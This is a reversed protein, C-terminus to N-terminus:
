DAAKARVDTKPKASRRVNNEGRIAKLTVAKKEPQQKPEADMNNIGMQKCIARIQSSAKDMIQIQPLARHDGYETQYTLQIGNECALEKQCQETYIM